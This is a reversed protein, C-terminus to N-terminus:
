RIGKTLELESSSSVVDFRARGVIQGRETIVDVRWKGPLVNNKFSYGRYGEGRGGVIPLFFKNVTIWRGDFHQWRHYLNTELDTPAFVATLVYVRGGTSHFINDYRKYFQWWEKKEYLVEYNNGVREVTHYVGVDKLSLPIPPITNSFYLVNFIIYITGIIVVLMSKGRRIKDPVSRALLKVFFWIAFLSVFGSLVFVWADISEVLIPVYFLSFSFLAVFYVGVQFGLRAYRGRSLENTLLFLIILAVFLGGSALSASRSYFVFYGSFLGGFAFQIALPFFSHGWGRSEFINFLLIGLGAILIYTGLILNDLWQDIRTLTFNDVVFGLLFAGSSIRREYKTYFEKIM